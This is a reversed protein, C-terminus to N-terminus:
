SAAKLWSPARRAETPVSLEIRMQSQFASLSCFDKPSTPELTRETCKPGSSLHSATEKEENMCVALRLRQSGASVKRSASEPLTNNACLPMPSSSARARESSPETAAVVYPRKTCM